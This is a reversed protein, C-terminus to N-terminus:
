SEAHVPLRAARVPRADGFCYGSPAFSARRLAGTATPPAAAYEVCQDEPRDGLQVPVEAVLVQADDVHAPRQALRPDATGGVVGAVDRTRDVHVHIGVQSVLGAIARGPTMGEGVGAGERGPQTGQADARVVRDHGVVVDAAAIRCSEPPHEVVQSMAVDVEEVAADPDHVAAPKVSVVSM